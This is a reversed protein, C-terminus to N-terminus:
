VEDLFLRFRKMALKKAQEDDSAYIDLTMAASSHGLISSLSKIDMGSQVGLTAFTHRLGHMTM